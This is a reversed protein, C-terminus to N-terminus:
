THTVFDMISQRHQVMKEWNEHWIQVLKFWFHETNRDQAEHLHFNRAESVISLFRSYYIIFYNIHLIYIIFLIITWNQIFKTLFKVIQAREFEVKERESSFM